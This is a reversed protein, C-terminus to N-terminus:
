PGTVFPRNAWATGNVAKTRNEGSFASLTASQGDSAVGVDAVMRRQIDVIVDEDTVIDRKAAVINDIGMVVLALRVSRRPSTRDVEALYHDLVACPNTSTGDNQGSHRNSPTGNNSGTRHDALINSWSCCDGTNRCPRQM